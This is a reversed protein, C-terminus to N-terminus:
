AQLPTKLIHALTLRAENLTKTTLEESLEVMQSIKKLSTIGAFYYLIVIAKPIDELTELSEWVKQKENMKKFHRDVGEPIIGENLMDQFEAEELYVVKTDVEYYSACVSYFFSLLWSAFPDKKPRNKFEGMAMIFTDGVMDESQSEIGINNFALLYLLDRYQELLEGLSEISGEEAEKLLQHHLESDFPLLNKAKYLMAGMNIPIPLSIL